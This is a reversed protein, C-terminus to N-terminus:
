RAGSTYYYQSAEFSDQDACLDDECLSSSSLIIPRFLFIVLTIREIDDNWTQILSPFVNIIYDAM